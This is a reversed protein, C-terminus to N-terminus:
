ISPGRGGKSFGPGTLYALVVKDANRYVQGRPHARLEQLADCLDHTTMVLKDNSFVTYGGEGTIQDMLRKESQM